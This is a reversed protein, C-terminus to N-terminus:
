RGYLRTTYKMAGETIIVIGSNYKSVAVCDLLVTQFHICLVGLYGRCGITDIPPHPYCLRYHPLCCCLQLSPGDSLTQSAAIELWQMIM